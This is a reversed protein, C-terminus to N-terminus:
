RIFTQRQRLGPPTRTVRSPSAAPSQRQRLYRPRATAAGYTHLYDDIADVLITSTKSLAVIGGWAYGGVTVEELTTSSESLTGTLTDTDVWLLRSM